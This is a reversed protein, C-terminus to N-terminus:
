RSPVSSATLRAPGNGRPLLRITALINLLIIAIVRASVPLDPM